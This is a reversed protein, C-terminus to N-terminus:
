SLHKLGVLLEKTIFMTLVNDFIKKNMGHIQLAKEIDLPTTTDFKRFKVDLNSSDRSSYRSNFVSM